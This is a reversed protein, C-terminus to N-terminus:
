AQVKGADALARQDVLEVAQKKRADLSLREKAIDGQFFTGLVGPGLILIVIWTSREWTLWTTIWQKSVFRQIWEM